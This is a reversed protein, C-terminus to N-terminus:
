QQMEIVVTGLGVDYLLDALDNMKRLHAYLLMKATSFVQSDPIATSEDKLLLSLRQSACQLSVEGRHIRELEDCRNVCFEYSVILQRPDDRSFDPHFVNVHQLIAPWRPDTTIKEQVAACLTPINM